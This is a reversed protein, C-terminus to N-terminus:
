GIVGMRVANADHVARDPNGSRERTRGDTLAETTMYGVTAGDGFALITDIGAPNRQEDRVDKGQAVPRHPSADM